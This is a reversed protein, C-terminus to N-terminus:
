RAAWAVEEKKSPGFYGYEEQCFFGQAFVDAMFPVGLTDRFEQESIQKYIVTKGTAKSLIGAIEEM